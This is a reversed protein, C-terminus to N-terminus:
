RHRRKMRFIEYWFGDIATKIRWIDYYDDNKISDRTEMLLLAIDNLHKEILKLNKYNKNM